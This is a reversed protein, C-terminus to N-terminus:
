PNKDLRTLREFTIVETMATCNNYYNIQCNKGKEHKMNRLIILQLGNLSSVWSVERWSFPGKSMGTTIQKRCKDGSRGRGHFLYHIRNVPGHLHYLLVFHVSLWKETSCSRRPTPSTKKIFMCLVLAQLFLYTWVTVDNLPRNSIHWVNDIFEFIEVVSPLGFASRLCFSIARPLSYRQYNLDSICTACMHYQSGWYTQKSHRPSIHSRSKTYNCQTL